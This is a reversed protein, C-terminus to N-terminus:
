DRDHFRNKKTSDEHNKDTLLHSERLIKLKKLILCSFHWDFRSFCIGVSRKNFSEILISQILKSIKRM